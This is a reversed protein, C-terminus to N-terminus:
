SKRSHLLLFCHKAKAHNLLLTLLLCQLLGSSKSRVKPNNKLFNKFQNLIDSMEVCYVGHVTHFTGTEAHPAIRMDFYRIGEQLQRLFSLTQCQCLRTFINKLVVNAVCDIGGIISDITSTLSNDPSAGLEGNFNYTGSDHTGPLAVRNLPVDAISEELQAMWKNGAYNDFVRIEIRTPDADSDVDAVLLVPSDKDPSPDESWWENSNVLLKLGSKPSGDAPHAELHFYGDGQFFFRVDGEIYQYRREDGFAAEGETPLQSCPELDGQIQAMGADDVKAGEIVQISVAHKSKNQIRIYAGEGMNIQQPPYQQSILANSLYFSSDKL